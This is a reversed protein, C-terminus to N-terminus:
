VQHCLIVGKVEHSLTRQEKVQPNEREKEQRWSRLLKISQTKVAGMVSGIVCWTRKLNQNRKSPHMECASNSETFLTNISHQAKMKGCSSIHM